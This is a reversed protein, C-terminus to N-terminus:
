VCVHGAETADLIVVLDEDAQDAVHLRLVCVQPALVGVTCGFVLKVVPLAGLLEPLNLVRAANIGVVTDPWM